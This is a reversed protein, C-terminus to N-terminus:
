LDWPLAGLLLANADYAPSSAAMCISPPASSNTKPLVHVGNSSAYAVLGGASTARVSAYFEYGAPVWVSSNFVEVSAGVSTWPLFQTGNPTSGVAWAYEASGGYVVAELWAAGVGAGEYDCDIDVPTRYLLTGSGEVSDPHLHYRGVDLVMPLLPPRPEVEAGDSCAASVLGVHNVAAVTAYVMTGPALSLNTLTVSDVTEKVPALAWPALDCAFPSSGLCYGVAAIGSGSDAFPEWSLAFSDSSSLYNVDLAGALSVLTPDSAWDYPAPATTANTANATSANAPLLYGPLLADDELAPADLGWATRNLPGPTM